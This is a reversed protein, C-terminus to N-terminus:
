GALCGRKSAYMLRDLGLVQGRARTLRKAVRLLLHPTIPIVCIRFDKLFGGFDWFAGCYIYHTTQSSVTKRKHQVLKCSRSVM